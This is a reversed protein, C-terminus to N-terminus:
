LFCMVCTGVYPQAGQPPFLRLCALRLERVVADFPCGADRHVLIRAGRRRCPYGQACEGAVKVSTPESLASLIRRFPQDLICLPRAGKSNHSQSNAANTRRRSFTRECDPARRVAQPLSVGGTAPQGKKRHTVKRGRKLKRATMITDLDTDRSPPCPAASFSRGSAFAGAWVTREAKQLQSLM